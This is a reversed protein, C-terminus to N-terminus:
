RANLPQKESNISGYMALVLFHGQRRKIRMREKAVAAFVSHRCGFASPGSASSDGGMESVSLHTYQLGRSHCDLPGKPSRARFSDCNCADCKDLTPGSGLQHFWLIAATCNLLPM